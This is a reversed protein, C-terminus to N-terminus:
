PRHGGEPRLTIYTITWTVLACATIGSVMALASGDMFLGMLAVVVAGTVMQLTGLLASATGAIDGHDDLALVSTTPIVLGLFGYGIFLLVALVDLRQVGMTFLVALAIMPLLYGTAAVKVVGDLGFRKTLQGTFQAVGIFAVANISFFFSYVTPTLGYGQILV